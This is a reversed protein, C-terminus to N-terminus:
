WKRQSRLAPVTTLRLEPIGNLIVVPYRLLPSRIGVARRSDSAIRSCPRTIGADVKMKCLPDAEVSGFGVAAVRSGGSSTARSSHDAAVRSTAVFTHGPQFDRNISEVCEVM